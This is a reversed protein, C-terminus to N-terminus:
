KRDKAALVDVEYDLNKIQKQLLKIETLLLDERHRSEKFNELTTHDFASQVAVFDDQSKEQKRSEEIDLKEEVELHSATESLATDIRDQYDTINKMIIYESSSNEKECGSIIPITILLLMLLTKM